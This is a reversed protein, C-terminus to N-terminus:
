RSTHTHGDRLTLEEILITIISTSEDLTKQNNNCKFINLFHTHTNDFHLERIDAVVKLSRNRNAASM